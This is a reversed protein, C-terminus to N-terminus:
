GDRSIRPVPTADTQSSLNRRPRLHPPKSEHEGAETSQCSRIGAARHPLTGAVLRAVFTQSEDCRNVLTADAPRADMIWYVKGDEHHYKRVQSYFRGDVGHEVIHAALALIMAANEGNRVVYEHPWTEAYTRAFRWPAGAVFQRLATEFTKSM